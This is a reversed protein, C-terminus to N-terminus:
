KNKTNSATARPCNSCLKGEKCRYVLCCSTRIHILQDSDTNSLGLLPKTPLALVEFWRQAQALLYSSNCEPVFRQLKILCDLILDALLHSAYGPRIRVSPNMQELYTTFLRNLQQGAKVILDDTEGHLHNHNPFQFGYVLAGRRIQSISRLEPLGNLGYISIFALYVPQWIVADWCRTMWYGQGAEPTSIAIEDFLAKFTSSNNIELSIHEPHALAVQGSLYPTVQKSLDFLKSHFQTDMASNEKTYYFHFALL